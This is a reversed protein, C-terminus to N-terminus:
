NRIERQIQEERIRRILHSFPIVLTLATLPLFYFSFLGSSQEAMSIQFKSIQTQCKSFEGSSTMQYTQWKGSEGNALNAM